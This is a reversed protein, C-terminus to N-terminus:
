FFVEGSFLYALPYMLKEVHHTQFRLVTPGIRVLQGATLFLTRDNGPGQRRYRFEHYQVFGSRGQIDRDLCLNDKQKLLQPFLEVHSIQENRM